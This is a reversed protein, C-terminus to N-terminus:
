AAIMHLSHPATMRMTGYSSAVATSAPIAAFSIQLARHACQSASFVEEAERGDFHEDARLAALAYGHFAKQLLQICRSRRRGELFKQQQENRM